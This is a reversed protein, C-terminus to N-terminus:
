SLLFNEKKNDFWKLSNRNNHSIIETAACEILVNIFFPIM